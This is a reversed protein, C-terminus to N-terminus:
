CDAILGLLQDALLNKSDDAQRRFADGSEKALAKHKADIAGASADNENTWFCGHRITRRDVLSQYRKGLTLQGSM